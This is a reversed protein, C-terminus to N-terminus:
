KSARDNGSNNVPFVKGNAMGSLPKGLNGTEEVQSMERGPIAGTKGYCPDKYAVVSGPKHDTSM